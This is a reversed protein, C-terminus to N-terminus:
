FRGHAPNMREDPDVQLWAALIVVEEALLEAADMLGSEHIPALPREPEDRDCERDHRIGSNRALLAVVARLASAARNMRANFQPGVLAHCALEDAWSEGSMANHRGATRGKRQAEVKNLDRVASCAADQKDAACHNPEEIARITDVSM